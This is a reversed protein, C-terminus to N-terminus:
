NLLIVVILHNFSKHSVLIFYQIWLFIVVVLSVAIYGIVEFM